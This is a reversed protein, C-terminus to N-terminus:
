TGGMAEASSRYPLLLAVALEELLREPKGSIM